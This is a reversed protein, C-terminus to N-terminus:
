CCRSDVSFGCASRLVCSDVLGCGKVEVACVEGFGM